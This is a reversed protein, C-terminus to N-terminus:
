AAPKWIQGRLPRLPPHARKGRCAAPPAAGGGRTGAVRPPQFAQAPLRRGRSRPRRHPRSRRWAGVAHHDASAKGGLGRALSLGDEGPLMVDLLLLDVQHVALHRKMSLGDAVGSVEYGNDSLYRVLLERMGEDDDVVLIHRRSEVMAEIVGRQLLKYYKRSGQL